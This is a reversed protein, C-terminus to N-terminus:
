EDEDDTPPERGSLYDACILEVARGPSMEGHEERISKYAADFIKFQDWTLSIPAPFRVKPTEEGGGEDAKEETNQNSAKMLAALNGLDMETFGARKVDLGADGIERVSRALAGYDWKALEGSRNDAINRLRREAETTKAVYEVAVHKWGLRQAAILRGHGKIIIKTGAEALITQDQGYLRLSDEIAALNAEDHVRENKRDPVLEAVSVALHRLGPTIHDLNARTKAM